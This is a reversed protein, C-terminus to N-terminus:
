EKDYFALMVRLEKETTHVSNGGMWKFDSGSIEAIAIKNLYKRATKTDERPIYGVKMGNLTVAIANPDYENKPEPVLKVQVRTIPYEYIRDHSELYKEIEVDSKEFYPIGLYRKIIDIRGEYGLGVVITEWLPVGTYKDNEVSSAKKAKPKDKVAFYGIAIIGAGVIITPLNLGVIGSILVVAGIIIVTKKSM